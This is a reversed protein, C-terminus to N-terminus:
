NNTAEENPRSDLEVRVGRNARPLCEVFHRLLRKASPQQRENGQSEHGIRNKGKHFGAVTINFDLFLNYYPEDMMTWATQGDLPIQCPSCLALWVQNRPEAALRALDGAYDVGTYEYYAFLYDKGDDLRQLFISFNVSPTCVM